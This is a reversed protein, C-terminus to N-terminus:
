KEENEMTKKEVNWLKGNKTRCGGGGGGSWGAIIQFRLTTLTDIRRYSPRSPEPTWSPHYTRHSLFTAMLIRITNPQPHTPATPPSNLDDISHLRDDIFTHFFFLPFFNEGTIIAKINNECITADNLYSKINELKAKLNESQSKTLHKWRM